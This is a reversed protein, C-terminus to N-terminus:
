LTIRFLVYVHWDYQLSAKQVYMSIQTKNKKLESIFKKSAINSFILESCNDVKTQCYNIFAVYWAKDKLLHVQDFGELSRYTIWKSPIPFVVDTISYRTSRVKREGTAVNIHLSSKFCLGRVIM